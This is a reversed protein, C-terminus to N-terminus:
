KSADTPFSLVIKGACTQKKKDEGTRGNEEANLKGKTNNFLIIKVRRTNITSLTEILIM